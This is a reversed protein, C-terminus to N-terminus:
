APQTRGSDTSGPVAAVADTAPRRDRDFSIIDAETEGGYRRTLCHRADTVYRRACMIRSIHHVVIVRLIPM